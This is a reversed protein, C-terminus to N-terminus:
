WAGGSWRREHACGFPSVVAGDQKKELTSRWNVQSVRMLSRTKMYGRVAGIYFSNINNELYTLSVFYPHKPLVLIGGQNINALGSTDRLGVINMARVVYHKLVGKKSKAMQKFFKMLRFLNM